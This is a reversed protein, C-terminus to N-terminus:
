GRSGGQTGIRELIRTAAIEAGGTEMVKGPDPASWLRALACGLEGSYLDAEPLFVQPLHTEIAGRLIPYEQFGTREAHVLPKRNVICESVIGYGPKSVVADCSALVDRFSLTTPSVSHFRPRNWALPLVTFFELDALASVRDLAAEDWELTTFSLLVWRLDPDAGTLASLEGRRNVGPESSLPLLEQVPFARMPESFPLRLLLDTLGYAHVFRDVAPRWRTDAEAYPEYIWNWSFNGIAISPRGSRVAAEIPVGPIDCVVVSAGVADLARAEEDVLRDWSDVLQALARLTGDVDLRVSDRQVMGVDLAVSRHLIAGDALSGGVRLSTEDGSRAERQRARRHGLATGGELPTPLRASLFSGPLASVVTLDEDPASRRIASLVECSRVGHGYGHASVYYVIM